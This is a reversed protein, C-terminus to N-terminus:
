ECICVTCSMWMLLVVSCFQVLQEARPHGPQGLLAGIQVHFEQVLDM